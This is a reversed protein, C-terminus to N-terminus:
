RCTTPCNSPPPPLSSVPTARCGAMRKLLKLDAVFTISGPTAKEFPEASVIDVADVGRVVAHFEAALARLHLAVTRPTREPTTHTDSIPPEAATPVVRSPLRRAEFRRGGERPNWGVTAIYDFDGRSALPIRAFPSVRPNRALSGVARITLLFRRVLAVPIESM